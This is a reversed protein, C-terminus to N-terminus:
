LRGSSWADFCSERAMGGPAGTGGPEQGSGLLRGRGHGSKKISWKWEVLLDTQWTELVCKFEMAERKKAAM